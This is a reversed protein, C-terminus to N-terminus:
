EQKQASDRIEPLARLIFAISQDNEGLYGLEQGVNAYSYALMNKFNFAGGRRAISERIEMARRHHALSLDHQGANSLLLGLMNHASAMPHSDPPYKGSNERLRIVELMLQVGQNPAGKQYCRIAEMFLSDAYPISDTSPSKIHAKKLPDLHLHAAETMFRSNLSKAALSGSSQLCLMLVTVILIFYKQKM